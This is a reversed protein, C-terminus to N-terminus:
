QDSEDVMKNEKSMPKYINMPLAHPIVNVPWRSMLKSNNVFFPIINKIYTVGGGNRASIANILIKKGM